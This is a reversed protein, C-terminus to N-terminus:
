VSCNYMNGNKMPFQSLTITKEFSEVQLLGTPYNQVLLIIQKTDRCIKTCASKVKAKHITLYLHLTHILTSYTFM